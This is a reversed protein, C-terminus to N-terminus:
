LWQVEPKDRDILRNFRITPYGLTFTMLIQNEPPITLLERIAPSENAFDYFNGIYCTGLGLSQAMLMMQYSAITADELPCSTISLDAHTIILVPAQFFMTDIGSDYESIVREYFLLDTRIRKAEGPEMASLADEDQWQIVKGKLVEICHKALADITERTEVVIHKLSQANSGTPAYRAAEILKEITEKRVQRKQNYNRVSRRTRSFYLLKDPEIKMESTKPIFNALNM